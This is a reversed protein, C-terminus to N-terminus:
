RTRRPTRARPIAPVPGYGPRRAGHLVGQHLGGRGGPPRAGAPHLAPQHHQQLRRDQGQLQLWTPSGWGPYGFVNYGAQKSRTVQPVDTLPIYGVDISRSLVANFEATDVHVAGGPPRSEGAHPGGYAPNPAMTYAGTTTNFATLKYPGDVVQWLPNTAYTGRSPSGALYDYIKKANAPNTFDLIPGSPRPRPGPTRRCRSSAPRARQRHVVDPQGAQQPQPGADHRRRPRASWRDPIGVGPHLQGLQVREGQDRGQAHDICFLADKSTVPQGDSWKYNTNLTITVTKDGNSWVPEDALSMAPSENPAVGNGFWYLPRWMEYEFQQRHVGLPRRGAGGALDLDAGDRPGAWTITGAQPTGSAAPVTGFAGRPPAREERAPRAAPPSALGRRGRVRRRAEDASTIQDDAQRANKGDPPAAAIMLVTM